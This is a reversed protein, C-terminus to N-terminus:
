LFNAFAVKKLHIKHYIKITWFKGFFRFIANTEDFISETNAINIKRLGPIQFIQLSNM